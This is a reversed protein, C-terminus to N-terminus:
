GSTNNEHAHDAIQPLNTGILDELKLLLRCEDFLKQSSGIIQFRRDPIPETAFFRRLPRRHFSRLRTRLLDAVLYALRNPWRARNGSCLILRNHLRKSLSARKAVILVHQFQFFGPMREM